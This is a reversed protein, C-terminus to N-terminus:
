RIVGCNYKSYCDDDTRVHNECNHCWVTKVEKNEKQDQSILNIVYEAQEAEIVSCNKYTLIPRGASHDIKWDDM